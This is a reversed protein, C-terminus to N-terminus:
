SRTGGKLVYLMALTTIVIPRLESQLERAIHVEPKGMMLTEISGVMNGNAFVYYGAIAPRSSTEGHGHQGFRVDTIPEMWVTAGPPPRVWGHDIDIRTGGESHASARWEGTPGRSSPDFSVTWKRKGDYISCDFLGTAAGSCEFIGGKIEPGDITGYTERDSNDVVTVGNVRVTPRLERATDSTKVRYRGITFHEPPLFGFPIDM